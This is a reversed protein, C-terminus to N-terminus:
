WFVADFLQFWKHEWEMVYFYSQGLRRHSVGTIRAVWSASILLIATWLWGSLFEHSGIKFFGECFLAPPTTWPSPGSNLGWYQLFLYFFLFLIAINVKLLFIWYNIYIYKLSLFNCRSSIIQHMDPFGLFLFELVMLYFYFSLFCPLNISTNAKMVTVFTNSLWNLLSFTIKAWLKLPKPGHDIPEMANPNTALFYLRTFCLQEGAWRTASFCHLFSFPAPTGNGRKLACM